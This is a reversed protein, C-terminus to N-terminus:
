ERRKMTWKDQNFSPLWDNKSRETMLNVLESWNEDKAGFAGANRSLLYAFYLEEDSLEPLSAVNKLLSEVESSVGALEKCQLSQLLQAKYFVFSPKNKSSATETNAVLTSIRKCAPSSVVSTNKKLLMLVQSASALESISTSQELTERALAELRSQSPASLQAAVQCYALAGLLFSKLRTM